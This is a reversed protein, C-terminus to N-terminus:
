WISRCGAQTPCPTAPSPPVSTPSCILISACNARHIPGGEAVPPYENHSVPGLVVGDCMRALELTRPPFTTGEAKLADFGITARQYEINLGFLQDAATLVEVTARTIEPGIGDGELILLTLPKSM